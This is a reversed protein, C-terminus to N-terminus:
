LYVIMFSQTLYGDVAVIIHLITAQPSLETVDKRLSSIEDENCSGTILFVGLITGLFYLRNNKITKMFTNKKTHFFKLIVYTFVDYNFAHSKFV